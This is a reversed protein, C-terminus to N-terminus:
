VGSLEGARERKEMALVRQLALIAVEIQSDDPHRVTLRQLCLGPAAAMRGLRGEWHRGSWKLLEYSIGAVLPLLSLRSGIRWALSGEGLFSFVVISIVMVILLFSTGCRPHLIPYPRVRMVELPEGAEYAHIVKHEAGHYQFVRQVDPMKAIVAVYGVFVLVRLAGEVLNQLLVGPLFSRAWHVASTPLIVFLFITAAFAILLTVAIEGAGLEEGEAEAAQSASFNLAKLGLVLTELLVVFGRVLPWRLPLLREGWPNLQEEEIVVTNDPRRVAIALQRPGRMAVGEIVAQGGYQFGGEAPM